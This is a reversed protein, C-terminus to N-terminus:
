LGGDEGSLERPSVTCATEAALRAQLGPFPRRPLGATLGLPLELLTLVYGHRHGPQAWTGRSWRPLFGRFWTYLKVIRRFGCLTLKPGWRRQRRDALRTGLHCPGRTPPSKVSSNVPLFCLVPLVWALAGWRDRGRILWSGGARPSWAAGEQGPKGPWGSRVGPRQLEPLLRDPISPAGPPERHPQPVDGPRPDGTVRPCRGQHEGEARCLAPPHAAGVGACSEVGQSCSVAGGPGPGLGLVACSHHMLLASIARFELWSKHSKGQFLFFFRSTERFVGLKGEASGNM